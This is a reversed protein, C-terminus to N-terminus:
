KKDFIICALLLIYFALIMTTWPYEGILDYFERMSCVKVIM